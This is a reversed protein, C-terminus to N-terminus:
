PPRCGRCGGDRRAAAPGGGAPQDLQAVRHLASLTRALRAAARDRPLDGSVAALRRRLAAGRRLRDGLGRRHHDAACLPCLPLRRLVARVVLMVQFSRLCSRAHQRFPAPATPDRLLFKVAGQSGRAIEAGSLMPQEPRSIVTSCRKTSARWRRSTPSPVRRTSRTCPRASWASSWCRAIAFPHLARRLHRRHDVARVGHRGRRPGRRGGARRAPRTAHLLVRGLGRGQVRDHRQRRAGCQRARHAGQLHALLTKSTWLDNFRTNFRAKAVGPAINTAKNGVDVTTFQLSTPQFHTSGKDIPERVLAEIM